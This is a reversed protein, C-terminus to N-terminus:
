SWTTGALLGDFGLAQMATDCDDWEHEPATFHLDFYARTLDAERWAAACRCRVFVQHRVNLLLWLLVEAPRDTTTLERQQAAEAIARHPPQGASEAQALAAALAHWSPAALIRQAHEPVTTRVHTALRDTAKPTPTRRTLDAIVPEATQRYATRLHVLCQQAATAQKRHGHAERWRAIAILVFVATSLLAAATAGDEGSDATNLLEQAASRLAAAQHHEARIRRGATASVM